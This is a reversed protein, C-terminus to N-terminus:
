HWSNIKKRFYRFYSNRINWARGVDSFSFSRFAPPWRNNLYKKWANYGRHILFGFLDWPKPSGVFHIIMKEAIEPQPKDPYWACNFNDPLWAYHGACLINLISQDHSPLENPYQNAIALCKESLNQHRWEKLNLMLVGSNFYSLDPSLGLKGTYFRNGLTFEFSGGGVAALIHGKFDFNELILVNVEVVLDADLYLLEDANIIDALLLRGYITRDGHLTPFSEFLMLPDFDHFICEGEFNEFELLEKILNKDKNNLESCLFSLKLREQHPCNRILSSLTVGLGKLILRNICFAINM